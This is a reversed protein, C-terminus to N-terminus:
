VLSNTEPTKKIAVVQLQYPCREGLKGAGDKGHHDNVLDPSLLSQGNQYTLKGVETM